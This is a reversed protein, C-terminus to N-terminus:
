HAFTRVSVGGSALKKKGQKDNVIKYQKLYKILREVVQQCINTHNDMHGYLAQSLCQIQVEQYSYM